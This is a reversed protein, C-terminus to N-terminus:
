REDFLSLSNLDPEAAGLRNKEEIDARAIWEREPIGFDVDFDRPQVLTIFSPSRSASFLDSETLVYSWFRIHAYVAANKEIRKIGSNLDSAFPHEKRGDTTFHYTPTIELYWQGAFRHFRADFGLHRYYMVRTPDKKSKYAAFVTRRSWKLDKWKVLKDSLDDNLAFYYYGMGNEPQHFWIGLNGLFGRFAGGLLWVFDSKDVLGKSEAWNSTPFSLNTGPLCLSSWPDKTLDFFSYIKGDKLFWAFSNKLGASRLVERVGDRERYTTEAKHIEQHYRSVPLLNSYLREEIPSPGLYLGSNRAAALNQLAHFTDAHFVDKTKDFDIRLAKEKESTAFYDKVSVWYAEDTAPRSAIVIVPCNGGLWHRLDRATPRYCFSSSTESDWQGETAKSQVQVILNTAEGTDPRCIEIYGDIGVDSAAQTPTWLCKL